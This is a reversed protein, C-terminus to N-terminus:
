QDNLHWRPPGGKWICIVILICTLLTMYSLVFGHYRTQQLMAIGISMLLGYILLVIWGQWRVPLGWGFGIRKGRFWVDKESRM